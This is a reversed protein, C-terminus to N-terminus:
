HNNDSVILEFNEFDDPMFFRAQEDSILPSLTRTKRQRKIEIQLENGPAFERLARMFDAPSNVDSGQLNLVVDGAQLLLANDPKAKLVLVGRDSDFYEGLEPDLEALRLGATLPMGYWANTDSLAFDGMESMDGFYFEYGVENGSVWHKGNGALAGAHAVEVEMRAIQAALAERNIEPVVIREIWVNDDPGTPAAPAVPVGPAGPATALASPAAPASPASPAAPLRMISHWAMPERVEPVVKVDLTDIGREVSIIVPETAKLDSLAIALGNKVDGSDDVSALVRGGVAVIVDGAQLGAKEAPGNPSISLIEVGVDTKDGLVAGIVPRDGGSIIFRRQTGDETVFMLERNVQSLERSSERLERHARTLSERMAALEARREISIERQIEREEMQLKALEARAEAIAAQADSRSRNAEALANQVEAEVKAEAFAKSERAEAQAVRAQSKAQEAQAKASEAQATQASTNAPLSTAIALALTTVITLNVQKM